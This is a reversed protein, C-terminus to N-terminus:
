REPQSRLSFARRMVALRPLDNAVDDPGYAIHRAGLLHLTAVARALDGSDVARSPLAFVTKQSSGAAAFAREMWPRGPSVAAQPQLEVYDARSLAKAIAESFRLTEREDDLKGAHLTVVSKLEPQYARAAAFLEGALDFLAAAGPEALGPRAPDDSLVLGAFRSSVGLDEVLERAARRDSDSPSAGALEFAALPLAAYVQVHARTRLQWAVRNFLDAKVAVRRNPFYVADARGDGDRDTDARLYVASAGMALVRDLLQGLKKEQAAPDPDYVQDLSVHMARTWSAAIGGPERERVLIEEAFDTLTMDAGVLVRSLEALPTDPENIGNNLTLTIPMGNKRAIDLLPRTYSGYPWVMVRPKRGTLREIAASNHALDRDIRQLQASPSEYGRGDYGLATAAPQQNGQPNATIGRHLEYSHSAFEILGSQQMERIEGPLLFGERALKTDKVTHGMPADLWGGVLSVVAPAKYLKLIPFVHKYVSRYGDDFSLLVAKDPLPRRGERDALVDDIGVFSYGRARLWELQNVLGRTDVAFPDTAGENHVVEHYCLAIFKSAAQAPAFCALGLAAILGIKWPRITM